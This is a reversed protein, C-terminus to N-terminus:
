SGVASLMVEMPHASHRFGSYLNRIQESLMTHHTIKSKFSESDAAGPLNGHLLLYAVELFDKKKALEQIDYGRHRLIGKEGDIYTIASTCSATSMFGPDYTFYGTEGYLKTVDIVDPGINAKHIPLQFTKGDIKLEAFKQM